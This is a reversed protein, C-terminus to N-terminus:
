GRYCSDPAFNEQWIAILNTLTYIQFDSLSMDFNDGNKIFTQSRSKSRNVFRTSQYSFTKFAGFSDVVFLLVFIFQKLMDQNIKRLM